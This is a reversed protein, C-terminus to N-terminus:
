VPQWATGYGNQTGLHIEGGTKLNRRYLDTGGSSYVIFKGDPSFAPSYFANADTTIRKLHTGDSRMIWVELDGDLDSSFGIRAGSPSWDPYRDNAANDLVVHENGGKANMVWIDNDGARASNFVILNGNPSFRPWEDDGGDSLQRVHTGDRRMIYIYATDSFVIKKGNPSFSPAWDYSDNHTIRRLHSGDWRVVYVEFDSGGSSPVADFVIWRGDASSQPAEADAQSGLHTITRKKGGDSEMTAIQTVRTFAIKGSKGPFSAGAPHVEVLAVIVFMVLAVVAKRM